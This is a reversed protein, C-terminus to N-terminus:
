RLYKRCRAAIHGWEKCHYCQPGKPKELPKDPIKKPMFPPEKGGILNSNDGDTIPQQTSFKEAPRENISRRHWKPHEAYSQRDEFFHDAAIAAETLTTPNKDRAHSAPIPPLMQLLKEKLIADRVEEFTSKEGVYRNYLRLLKPTMSMFSVGKPKTFRWLRDGLRGQHIGCAELITIKVSEYDMRKEPTLVAISERARASLLPRLYTMWRDIPMEVLDQMLLEFEALYDEVDTDESMAQMKPTERRRQELLKEKRQAEERARAEEQQQELEQRRREEDIRRLTADAEAKKTFQDAQAQLFTLFQKQLREERELAQKYLHEERAREEEQRAIAEERQLQLFQALWPVQDQQTETANERPKEARDEFDNDQEAAADSRQPTGAENGPRERSSYGTRKRPNKSM